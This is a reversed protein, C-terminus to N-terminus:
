EEEKNEKELQAIRKKIVELSHELHEAQDMLADLEQREYAPGQPVDFPVMGARRPYGYGSRQWGTLGTAYFRNRRGRGGGRGFGLGLGGGGVSNMYGPASYGACYGAGRGTMPGMGLPGTRDGGPM